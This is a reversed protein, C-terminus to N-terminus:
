PDDTDLTPTVFNVIDGVPVTTSTASPTDVVEVLELEELVVEVDTVV